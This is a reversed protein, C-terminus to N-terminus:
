GCPGVSAAVAALIVTGATTLTSVCFPAFAPESPFGRLIRNCARDGTRVLQWGVRFPTPFALCVTSLQCLTRASSSPAASPRDDPAPLSLPCYAPRLRVQRQGVREPPSLLVVPQQDKTKQPYTALHNVLRRRRMSPVTSLPTYLKGANHYWLILVKCRPSGDPSPGATRVAPGRLARITTDKTPNNVSHQNDTNQPECLAQCSTTV